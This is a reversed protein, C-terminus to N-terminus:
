PEIQMMANAMRLQEHHTLNRDALLFLHDEEEVIHHQLRDVLEGGLLRLDHLCREEPLACASAIVEVVQEEVSRIEDHHRDLEALLSPWRTRVSPYFIMEEKQFHLEALKAIVEMQAKLEPVSEASLRHLQESLRDLHAEMSRHDSRLCDSAPTHSM